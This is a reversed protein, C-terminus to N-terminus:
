VVTAGTSNALADAAGLNPDVIYKLKIDSGAAANRAHIQGIRGAGFLAVNFMSREASSKLEVSSYLNYDSLSPCLPQFVPLKPNSRPRVISRRDKRRAFRRFAPLYPSM